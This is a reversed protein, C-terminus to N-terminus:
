VLPEVDVALLFFGLVVSGDKRHLVPLQVHQPEQDLVVDVQIRLVFFRLRGQVVGAFLSVLFGNQKQDHRADINILLVLGVLLSAVCLHIGLHEDVVDDTLLCAEIHQRLRM